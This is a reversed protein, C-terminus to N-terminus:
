GQVLSFRVPTNELAQMVAEPHKVLERMMKTANDKPYATEKISVMYKAELIFPNMKRM